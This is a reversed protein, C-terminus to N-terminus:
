HNRPVVKLCVTDLWPRFAGEHSLNKLWYFFGRLLNLVECRDLRAADIKERLDRHHDLYSKGCENASYSKIGGRLERRREIPKQDNIEKLLDEYEKHNYPRRLFNMVNERFQSHNSKNPNGSYQRGDGDMSSDYARSTVFPNYNGEGCYPANDTVLVELDSSNEVDDEEYKVRKGDKTVLVVCNSEQKICTLFELYSEDMMGGVVEGCYPANDTVLVELDSSNEVDDEEYKVRKGDKTVLVVCNSEQKICNLFEQYSEDMMGGVVEGCYPANDTVLVELDSSNEVDDEEYKVRKGDKTVLVVCNSEQKICNLFEQYSEDMMGGVMESQCELKSLHNDEPNPKQSRCGNTEHSVPHALGSKLDKEVVLTREKDSLNSLNKPFKWRIKNSINGLIKPTEIKDKQINRVDKGGEIKVRKLKRPTQPECEDDSKGEAEYKIFESMGNNVAVELVYSKEDEKLKELFMKYQPDTDEQGDDNDDEIRFCRSESYLGSHNLSIGFEDLTGDGSQNDELTRKLTCSCTNLKFDRVDPWRIKLHRALRDDDVFNSEDLILRM